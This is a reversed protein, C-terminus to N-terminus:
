RRRARARRRQEQGTRRVRPSGPAGCPPGPAPRRRRRTPPARAARRDREAGGVAEAARDGRQGSRVQETSSSGPRRGPHGASRRGARRRHEAARDGPQAIRVQDRHPDHQDDRQEPHERRAHGPVGARRRAVLHRHGRHRQVDRAAASHTPPSPAISTSSPRRRSSSARRQGPERLQGPGAERHDRDAPHEGRLDPEPRPRRQEDGAVARQHDGLRARQHQEAAQAPQGPAPHGGAAHRHQAPGPDLDASIATVSPSAAASVWVARTATPVHQSRYAELLRLWVESMTPYAPVAHWLRDLPM